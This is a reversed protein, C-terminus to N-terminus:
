QAPTVPMPDSSRESASMEGVLGIFLGVVYAMEWWGRPAPHLAAEALTVRKAKARPIWRLATEWIIANGAYGMSSWPLWNGPVM